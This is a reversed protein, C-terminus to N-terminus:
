FYRTNKLLSQRTGYSFHSEFVEGIYEADDSYEYEEVVVDNDCLDFSYELDKPSDDVLFDSYSTECYSFSDISLEDSSVMSDYDGFVRDIDCEPPVSDKELSGKRFDDDEKSKAHRQELCFILNNFTFIMLISNLIMYPHQLLLNILSAAQLGLGNQYLLSYIMLDFKSVRLMNISDYIHPGKALSFDSFRRHLNM